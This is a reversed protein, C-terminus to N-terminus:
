SSTITVMSGARSWRVAKGNYHVATVQPGYFRVGAIAATGSLDVRNGSFAVELAGKSNGLDLLLRQGNQDFLKGSGQLVIRQLTGASDARKVAIDDASNGELRLTGAETTKGSTNYIWSELANGLPVAFGRQPNAADLPQVNPRNGWEATKTPWLVELFVTNDSPTTPALRAYGFHGDDDLNEGHNNSIQTTITANYAAPAVVRIGLVTDNQNTLKLWPSDNNNTAAPELSHFLQEVTRPKDLLVRDQLTIFGNNERSMGVTRLLTKIGVTSPYLRRGDGRAFAYHDTSVRLPMSAEREFFWAPGEGGNNVSHQKPILKGDGNKDDGLQGVGDFLFTNQWATSHYERGPNCCNYAVAEPLLWGGKGYIWLGLDDEHNHSYNLSGQPFDRTKIREFNGRGGFVGAKFGLVLSDAAPSTTGYSWSNRMIVSQQDENYVDLPVKSMDPLPVTPDYAVYELAYAFGFEQRVLRPELDWRRAAEQAFPDKHRRGAWRLVAQLGPRSWNWDGHTMVHVRPHNPQQVYLIYRGVKSMLKSLDDNSGRRAAGIWYMLNRSLGFEMYAVGEHWSGDPILDLVAKIKKMNLAAINRWHAANPDEGELAQGAVGIASYNVWNHNQVLDTTWWEGADAADALKKASDAIRNRCIQRQEPTLLDYLVDYGIAGNVIDFSQHLDLDTSWARNCHEMLSAIANAKDQERDGMIRTMMAFGMVNNPGVPKANYKDLYAIINKSLAAHTTTRVSRLRALEAADWVTQPHRSASSIEPRNTVQAAGTKIGASCGILFLATGAIVTTWMKM